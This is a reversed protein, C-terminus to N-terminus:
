KMVRIVGAIHGIYSKLLQYYQDNQINDIKITAQKYTWLNLVPRLFHSEQFIQCIEIFLNLAVTVDLWFLIFNESFEGLSCKNSRFKHKLGRICLTGSHDSVSYFDQLMQQVCKLFRASTESRKPVNHM